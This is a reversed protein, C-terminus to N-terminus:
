LSHILALFTEKKLCLPTQENCHDALTRSTTYEYRRKHDDMLMFMLGLLIEEMDMNGQHMAHGPYSMLLSCGYIVYHVNSAPLNVTLCTPMGLLWVLINVNNMGQSKDAGM